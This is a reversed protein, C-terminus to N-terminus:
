KKLKDLAAKLEEQAQKVGEIRDLTLIATSRDRIRVTVSEGLTAPLKERPRISKIRKLVAGLKSGAPWEGLPGPGLTLASVIKGPGVKALIKKFSDDSLSMLQECLTAAFEAFKHFKQRMQRHKKQTKEHWEWVDEPKVPTGNEYRPYAEALVKEAVTVKAGTLMAIAIADSPRSDLVKVEGSRELVLEGYFVGKRLDTVRAEKVGIGFSDLAAV